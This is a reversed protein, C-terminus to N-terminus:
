GRRGLRTAVPTPWVKAITPVPGIHTRAKAPGRAKGRGDRRPRLGPLRFYFRTWRYGILVKRSDMWGARCQDRLRSAAAYTSIGEHEALQVATISARLNRIYDYLSQGRTRGSDDRPRM